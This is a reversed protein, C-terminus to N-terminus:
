QKYLLGYWWIHRKIKKRRPINMIIANEDFIYAVSRKSPISEDRGNRIM